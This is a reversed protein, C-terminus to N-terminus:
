EDGVFSYGRGRVTRIYHTKFDKNIIKRLRGIHVDITREDIFVDHGWIANLIQERSYVNKPKTLLFQLLKFEIPGLHLQIDGHKVWNEHKHLVLKEYSLQEALLPPNARRLLAKVRALLENISFPKVIYDDAGLNLGLIKDQEESRATLMILPISKTKDSGKIRRCLEIGSLKPLMWDLLIIDPTKEAIHLLAEEGNQLTVVQFGAKELNYSLLFSIAEEDEVVYVLPKIAM